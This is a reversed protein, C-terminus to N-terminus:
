LLSAFIPASLNYGTIETQSQIKKHMKKWLYGLLHDQESVKKVWKMGSIEKSVGQFCWFGRTKQHKWPTYFHFM